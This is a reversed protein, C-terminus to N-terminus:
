WATFILMVNIEYREQQKVESASIADIEELTLGDFPKFYEWRLASGDVLANGIGANRREAENQAPISDGQLM